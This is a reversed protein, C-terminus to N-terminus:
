KKEKMFKLDDFKDKGQKIAEKIQKETFAYREEDFDIKDQMRKLRQKQQEIYIRTNRQGEQYWEIKQFTM